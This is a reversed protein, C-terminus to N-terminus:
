EGSQWARLLDARAALPALTLGFLLATVGWRM